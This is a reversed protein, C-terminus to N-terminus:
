KQLIKITLLLQNNLQKFNFSYFILLAITYALLDYWDFTGPIIHFAQSIESLYTLIIALLLWMVFYKSSYEKWVISLTSLLAYFWLGDPLNYIIWNPLKSYHFLPFLKQKPDIFYFGRCYVYITIGLFIPLIVNLFIRIYQRKM